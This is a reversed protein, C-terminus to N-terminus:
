PDAIGLGNQFTYSGTRLYHLASAIYASECISGCLQIYWPMNQIANILDSNVWFWVTNAEDFFTVGVVYVLIAAIVAGILAGVAAGIPGAEAGIAAGIAAGVAVPGLNVLLSAKDTGIQYHLLQYGFAAWDYKAYIQYYNRDPHPYVYPYFRVFHIADWIYQAPPPAGGGGGGGCNPSIITKGLCYIINPSTSTGPSSITASSALADSTGADVILSVTSGAFNATLTHKSGAQVFSFLYGQSTGTITLTMTGFTLTLSQGPALKSASSALVPNTLLQPLLILLLLLFSAYTLVRIKM